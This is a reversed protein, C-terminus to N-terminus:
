SPKNRMATTAFCRNQMAEAFPLGVNWAQHPRDIDPEIRSKCTGGGQRRQRMQFIQRRPPKDSGVICRRNGAAIAQWGSRAQGLSEPGIQEPAGAPRTE